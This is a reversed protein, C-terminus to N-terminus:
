TMEIDDNHEFKAESEKWRETPGLYVGIGSVVALVTIILGVSVTGYSSTVLHTALAPSFGGCISLAINYGLAMSTLRIRQPFISMMFPLMAGTYLALVVGLIAQFGFVIFFNDGYPSKSLFHLLLPSLLASGVLTVFMIIKYSNYSCCKSLSNAMADVCRGGIMTLPLSFLGVATNIAFAHPTPPDRISQMYTALWIYVIYYLAASMCPVFTCAVLARANSRSCFVEHKPRQDTDGEDTTSTTTSLAIDDGEGSENGKSQSATVKNESPTKKVTAKNNELYFSPIFGFLAFWFPIRWGWDVLQQPNLIERLLYSM